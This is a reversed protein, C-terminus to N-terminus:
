RGDGFREVGRAKEVADDDEEMDPNELDGVAIAARICRCNYNWPEPGLIQDAEGGKKYIVGDMAAHGERSRTDNPNFVEYGWHHAAMDPQSMREERQQAYAANSETRFVTKIYGDMGSPLLDNDVLEELAQVFDSMPRGQEVAAAVTDRFRQAIQDNAAHKFAVVEKRLETEFFAIDTSNNARALARAADELEETTMIERDIMWKAAEKYDAPMQSYDFDEFTAPLYEDFKIDSITFALLRTSIICMEISEESLNPVLFALQPAIEPVPLTQETTGKLKGIAERVARKLRDHNDEALAEALADLKASYKGEISGASTKKKESFKAPAGGAAAPNASQGLMLREVPVPVDGGAIPDFGKRARAENITVIGTTLDYQFIEDRKRRLLPKGKRPTFIDFKERFFSQEVDIDYDAAAGLVKLLQDADIADDTDVNWDVTGAPKNLNMLVWPDVACRQISASSLRGLPRLKINTTATHETAQARSGHEAEMFNLTGGLIFRLKERQLYELLTQHPLQGSAAGRTMWDIAAGFPLVVGAKQKLNKLANELSKMIEEQQDGPNQEMKAIAVPLGYTDCADMWSKLADRAFSYFHKLTFIAPVGFPNGYMGRSRFLIFRNPPPYALEKGDKMYMLNGLEDFGFQGPHRMLYAKPVWRGKLYQWIIEHVCFGHQLMGIISNMLMAEWGFESETKTLATETEIRMKAAAQDDEEANPTSFHADKGLLTAAVYELALGIIPDKVVMEDMLDYLQTDRTLLIGHATSNSETPMIRLNYLAPNFNLFSSWQANYQAAATPDRLDVGRGRPLLQSEMEDADEQDIAKPM